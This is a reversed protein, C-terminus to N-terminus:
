GHQADFVGRQALLVADSLPLIPLIRSQSKAWIAEDLQKMKELDGLGAAERTATSPVSPLDLMGVRIWAFSAVAALLCVALGWWIKPHIGSRGSSPTNLSPTVISM